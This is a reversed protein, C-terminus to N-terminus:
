SLVVKEQKSLESVPPWGDPVMARWRKRQRRRERVDLWAAGLVLASFVALLGGLIWKVLMLAEITAADAPNM